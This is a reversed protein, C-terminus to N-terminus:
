LSTRCSHTLDPRTNILTHIVFPRAKVLSDTYKVVVAIVLGGVASLFVLGWTYENFGHFPDGRKEFVLIQFFALVASYASLQINLSLLSPTPHMQTSATCFATVKGLEGKLLAEVYIGAYGSICMAVLAAVFGLSVGSFSESVQNPHLNIICAGLALLM